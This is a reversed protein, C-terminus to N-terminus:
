VIDDDRQAELGEVWSCFCLVFFSRVSQPGPREGKSLLIGWRTGERGVNAFGHRRRIGCDRLLDECVSSSGGAFILLDIDVDVSFWGVEKAWLISTRFLPVCRRRRDLPLLRVVARAERIDM